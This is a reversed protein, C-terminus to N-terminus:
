ITHIGCETKDSGDENKMNQFRGAREMGAARPFTVPAWGRATARVGRRVRPPAREQLPGEPRERPRRTGGYQFWKERDVRLTSHMDGLSPYGEDHLPHYPVGRARIYDWCDQFSWHALPNMKDAEWVELGAREFGQDRRRGNIWLRTNSEKLARLLPEVKAVRDYEEVDEVFLDDSGGGGGGGRHARRRPPRVHPAARARRAPAVRPVCSYKDDFEDKSNVGEARYMVAQAGACGSSLPSQSTAYPTAEAHRGSCLVQFGYHEEVTTLFAYTEPFLHLTDVFIVQDAHNSLPFLATTQM